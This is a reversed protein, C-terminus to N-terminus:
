GFKIRRRKEIGFNTTETICLMFPRMVNVLKQGWYSRFNEVCRNLADNM